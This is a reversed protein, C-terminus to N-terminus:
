QWLYSKAGQVANRSIIVSGSKEGSEIILDAGASPIPQKSINFGASLVIADDNDTFREVGHAMMRV